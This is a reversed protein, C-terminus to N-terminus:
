PTPEPLPDSFEGSQTLLRGFLPHDLELTFRFRGREGVADPLDEHVVHVRGPTMAAPLPWRRGWALLFYGHSRFHLAGDEVSLELRMGLRQRVVEELGGDPASQKVSVLEVPPGEAPRFRRTWVVGGAADRHVTVEVPADEGLFPSFPAGCIRSLRDFLRGWGTAQIRMQGRYVAPASHAGVDFRARAAASLQSWASRGLRKRFDVAPPRGIRTARADAGLVLGAGYPSALAL